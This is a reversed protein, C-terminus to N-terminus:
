LGSKRLLENESRHRIRTRLGLSSWLTRMELNGGGDDFSVEFQTEYEGEAVSLFMAQGTKEIRRIFGGNSLPSTQRDRATAGWPHPQSVTSQGSGAPAIM